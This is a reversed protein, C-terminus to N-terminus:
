VSRPQATMAAPTLDRDGLAREARHDGAGGGRHGDHAWSAVTTLAGQRRRRPPPTEPRDDLLAVAQSPVTRPGLCQVRRRAAERVAIATSPATGAGLTRPMRQRRRVPRAYHERPRTSLVFPEHRDGARGLAEADRGAPRSASLTM